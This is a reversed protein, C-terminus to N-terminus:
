WPNLKFEDYIENNKNLMFQVILELKTAEMRLYGYEKAQVVSWNGYDSSFDETQLTAGASGVVVHVTGTERCM